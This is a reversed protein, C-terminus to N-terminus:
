HKPLGVAHCWLRRCGNQDYLVFQNWNCGNYHAQSAKMGASSSHKDKQEHSSEDEEMGKKKKSPLSVLRMPFNKWPKKIDKQASTQSELISSDWSCPPRSYTENGNHKMIMQQLTGSPAPLVESCRNSCSRRVLNPALSSGCCVVCVWSACLCVVCVSTRVLPPFLPLLHLVIKAVNLMAAAGPKMYKSLPFNEHNQASSFLCKLKKCWEQM